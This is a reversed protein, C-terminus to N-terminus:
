SLDDGPDDAAGWVKQEQVLLDAASRAGPTEDDEPGAHGDPGSTEAAEPDYPEDACLMGGSLAPDDLRLTGAGAAGQRSPQWTALATPAGPDGGWMGAEERSYRSAFVDVEDGEAPAVAWLMPVISNEASDWAAFEDPEGSPEAVGAEGVASTGAAAEGEAFPAGDAIPAPEPFAGYDPFAGAEPGIAEREGDGPRGDGLALGAEALLAAEAALAAEHAYGGGHGSVADFGPDRDQGPAAPGGGATAGTLLAGGEAAAGALPEQGEATAGAHQEGGEPTAGPVPEGGEPSDAWGHAAGDVSDDASGGVSDDASPGGAAARATRGPRDEGPGPGTGTVAPEPPVLFAGGAAIPATAEALPEAADPDTETGWPDASAELLGSADSPDTGGQNPGATGAGAGMAGPPMFPMGAAPEGTAPEADDPFAEPASTPLDLGTDGPDAARADPEEFGADTAGAWPEASGDLLGSSDSPETGGGQQGNMGGAGMGGPPMFPMGSGAEGATGEAAEPFAAPSDATDSLGLDSGPGNSELGLDGPLPSPAGALGPLDADSLGGAGGVGTDGPFDEPLGSEGFASGDSPLGTGPLDADGGTGTSGPFAAPPLTALDAPDAGDPLGTDTGGPFASPTGADPNLAADMANPDIPPVDDGGLGGDLGTGDGGPFGSPDAGPDGGLGDTSTSGDFAAPAGGADLGGTDPGGGDLGGGDLGGTGLGGGDLGDTGPPDTGPPPDDTPSDTLPSNIPEPARIADITVQYNSALSKLVKRMDTNLMEVLEPKRSVPILGNSMPTVGMRVAQDAYWADIDHLLQQARALNLANNTVQHPVSHSGTAGGSLVDANAQVQKAFTHMMDLFAEAADGQWPGNSGALAEAQDTLSKAVVTFTNMAYAFADAADVLSLPSSVSTAHDRNGQSGVGASMGNIAAEIQKWDWTDYDSISGPDSGSDGFVTGDDGETFGDGQYRNSDAM